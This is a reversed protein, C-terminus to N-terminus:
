WATKVIVNLSQEKRKENKDKQSYKSTLSGITWGITGMILVGMAILNQTKEGEDSQGFVQEAFLMIVGSFGLILGLIIPLSSFNERWKPKDFIIIWIATAASLISVIGSSIYQESWIIAAMDVFLLLFGVFIAQKVDAR